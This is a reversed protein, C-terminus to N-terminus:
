IKGLNEKALGYEPALQLAAEFNEKAAEKNGLQVYNMGQYNLLAAKMPIEKQQKGDENIVVNMEDIAKDKLLIDLSTKSENHRKLDFQLMGIKYLTYPNERKLYLSEYSSLAKDYVGLNEYSIAQIELAPLHDSNQALIDRSVLL